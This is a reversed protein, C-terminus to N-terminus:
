SWESNEEAANNNTDVIKVAGSESALALLSKGAM